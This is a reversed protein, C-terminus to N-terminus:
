NQLIYKLIQIAWSGIQWGAIIYIITGKKM